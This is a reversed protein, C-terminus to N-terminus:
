GLGETNARAVIRWFDEDRLTRGFLVAKPGTQMMMYDMFGCWDAMVWGNDKHWYHHDLGYQVKFPKKSRPGLETVVAQINTTPADFPSGDRDSFTSDDGYYIRWRTM